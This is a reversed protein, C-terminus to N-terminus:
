VSVQLIEVANDEIRAASLIGTEYAGTDLGLRNDFIEPHRDIWSHGHVVRKEFMGTHDLFGARIWLLDATRQRSLPVNPRIGAHVFAYDGIVAMAQLSQLLQLHAVPMRALLDDRAREMCAPDSRDAPPLVGYSRLTAAGGFELWAGAGRPASLFDLLSQEHNGLLPRLDIRSSRRIHDLAALVEASQPGRDIYDGCTVLIPRRTGMRGAADDAIRAMMARFLDYRGHIDGIAYVLNGDVRAATKHRRPGDGHDLSAATAGNM